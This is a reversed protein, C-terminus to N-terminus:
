RRCNYQPSTVVCFRHFLTFSVAGIAVFVTTCVPVGVSYGLEAGDMTAMVLSGIIVGVIAGVAGGIVGGIFGAFGLQPKSRGIIIRSYSFNLLKEAITV